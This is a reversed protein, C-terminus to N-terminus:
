LNTWCKKPGEGFPAGPLPDEQVSRISVFHITDSVLLPRANEIEKDIKEIIDTCM